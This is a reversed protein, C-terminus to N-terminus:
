AAGRVASNPFDLWGGPPPTVPKNGFLPHLKREVGEARFCMRKKDREREVLVPYARKNPLLGVVMFTEGGSIFTMGLDSPKLGFLDANKRFDDAATDVVKGNRETVTFRMKATFANDDFSGGVAKVTLGLGKAYDALAKVAGEHVLRAGKTDFREIKTM